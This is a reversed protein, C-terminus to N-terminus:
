RVVVLDAGAACPVASASVAREVTVMRGRAGRRGTSRASRERVM